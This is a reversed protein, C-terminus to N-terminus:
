RYWHTNDSYVVQTIRLNGIHDTEYPTGDWTFTDSDGSSMWTSDVYYYDNYDEIYNGFVDYCDFNLKFAKITKYSVNTFNINIDGNSSAYSSTAVLPANAKKRWADMAKTKMAYFESEYYTGSLISAASDAIHFATQYEGHMYSYDYQGKYDIYCYDEWLYWGVAKYKNIDCYPVSINRGDLSYMDVPGYWGCNEYVPLLLDPIAMVRGDASYVNMYNCYYYTNSWSGPYTAVVEISATVDPIELDFYCWTGDDYDEFDSSYMTDNITKIHNGSADYCYFTLYMSSGNNFNGAIYVDASNSYLTTDSPSIYIEFGTMTFTSASGYNYQNMTIPLYNYREASASLSLLTFLVLFVTSFSLLLKKM